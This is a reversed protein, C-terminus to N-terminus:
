TKLEFGQNPHDQNRPEIHVLKTRMRKKKKENKTVGCLMTRM